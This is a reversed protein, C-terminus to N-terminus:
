KCLMMKRCAAVVEIKDIPNGCRLSLRLLKGLVRRPVREHTKGCEGVQDFRPTVLRRLVRPGHTRRAVIGRPIAAREHM